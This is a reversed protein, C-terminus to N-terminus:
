AGRFLATLDLSPVHQHSALSVYTCALADRGAGFVTGVLGIANAFEAPPLSAVVKSWIAEELVNFATLVERIDFGADFREQALRTSHDIIPVLDRTAVSTHVLALLRQMRARVAAAGAEAYHRQQSRELAAAAEDVIADTDRDLVAILDIM